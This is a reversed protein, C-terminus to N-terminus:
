EFDEGGAARLELEAISNQIPRSRRLTVIGPDAKACFVDDFAARPEAVCVGASDFTAVLYRTWNDFYRGFSTALLEEGHMGPTWRFVVGSIEAEELVLWDTSGDSNSRLRVFGEPVSPSQPQVCAELVEHVGFFHEEDAPAALQVRLGNSTMLLLGYDRPLPGFAAELRGLEAATAPPRLMLRSGFHAMLRNMAKDVVTEQIM